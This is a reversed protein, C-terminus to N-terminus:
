VMFLTTYSLRVDIIVAASDWLLIGPVLVWLGNMFVLYIWLLTFSSGDLNPSGEVWEPAFTMFGIRIHIYM